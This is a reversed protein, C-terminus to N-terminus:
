IHLISKAYNDLVAAPKNTQKNTQKKPQQHQQQQKQQKKTTTSHLPFYSPLWIYYLFMFVVHEINFM